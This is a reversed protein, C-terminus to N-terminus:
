FLLGVHITKDTSTKQFSEDWNSYTGGWTYALYFGLQNYYGLDWILRYGAHRGEVYGLRAEATCMLGGWFPAGGGFAIGVGIDSFGYKETYIKPSVDPYSRWDACESGSGSFRGVSWDVYAYGFNTITFVGKSLRGTVDRGTITVDDEEASIDAQYRLRTEYRSFSMESTRGKIGEVYIGFGRYIPCITIGYGSGEWHIKVNTFDDQARLYYPICTKHLTERKWERMYQVEVVHLDQGSASRCSLGLTVLLVIVHGALLFGCRFMVRAMDLRRIVNAKANQVTHVGDGRM